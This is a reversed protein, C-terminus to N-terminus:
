AKTEQSQQKQLNIVKERRITRNATEGRETALIKEEALQKRLKADPERKMPTKDKKIFVTKYNEEGSQM